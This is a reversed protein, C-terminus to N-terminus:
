EKTYGKLATAFLQKDTDSMAFADFLDRRVLYTRLLSQGRRWEAIKRHNGSLLVDPVRKGVLEEPRTFQPYELLGNSFSEEITSDVKGIVGPILRSIAEIVAMAAVEGGNLVFDGISIQEDFLEVVREDLGEYRGCFLLLPKDLEALRSADSQVFPKGQPSLFVKHCDPLTSFASLVPEPMMVMGPGGGYPTDDVTRHRDTAFDRVNLFDFRLLQKEVAKGILSTQVFTEFLEPFLTGLIFRYMM